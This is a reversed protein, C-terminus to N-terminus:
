NQITQFKHYEKNSLGRVNVRNIDLTMYLFQFFYYFKNLCDNQSFKENTVVRCIYCMRVCALLIIELIFALVPVCTPVM